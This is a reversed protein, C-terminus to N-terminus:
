CLAGPPCNPDPLFGDEEGGADDGETEAPQDGGKAGEDGGEEEEDDGREGRTLIAWAVVAAGGVAFGIAFYGM